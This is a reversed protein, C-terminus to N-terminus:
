QNFIFDIQYKKETTQVDVITNYINAQKNIKNYRM